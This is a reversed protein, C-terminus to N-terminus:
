RARLPREDRRAVEFTELAEQDLETGSALPRLAPHHADVALVDGEEDVALLERERDVVDLLGTQGLPRVRGALALEIWVGGAGAPRPSPAFRPSLRITLHLVHVLVEHVSQVHQCRLAVEALLLQ